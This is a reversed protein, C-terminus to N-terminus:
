GCCATHQTWWVNCFLGCWGCCVRDVMCYLLCGPLFSGSLDAHKKVLPCSLFVVCVTWVLWLLSYATDMVYYLVTWVLWLLSHGGCLVSSLCDVGVVAPQLSHGDCLVSCDVGVM